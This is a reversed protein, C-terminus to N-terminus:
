ANQLKHLRNLYETPSCNTYKNFCRCFTTLNNFGVRFAVDTVSLGDNATLMLQASLIRKHCLYNHYTMHTYQKFLRSFHYKSFGCYDAAQELSLDDAYHTDIFNLLSTFTEHYKQPGVPDASVDAANRCFYDQGIVRLFNLLLSYVASEWFPEHSFYIEAMRILTHHLPEHIDPRLSATCLYPEVFIPDLAKFDQFCRMMDIDILFIFRSGSPNSPIEHLMYPPIMLIDGEELTYTRNNAVIDYREELSVTIELANHYHSAYGEPQVNHWIRVHSEPVFIVDEKMGNLSRIESPADPQEYRSSETTKQIKM